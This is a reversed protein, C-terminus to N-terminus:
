VSEGCAMPQDQMDLIKALGDINEGVYGIVNEGNPDKLVARFKGGYEEVAVNLDCKEISSKAEEALKYAQVSDSVSELTITGTIFCVLVAASAITVAWRAVSSRFISVLLTLVLLGILMIIMNNSFLSDVAQEWLITGEFLGQLTPWITVLIIATVVIRVINIAWAIFRAM